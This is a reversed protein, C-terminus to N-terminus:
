FLLKNWFRSKVAVGHAADHSVNFATLLIALGMLLYYVYFWLTTTSTIMLSYFLVDLGFYLVIKFLNKVNNLIKKCKALSLM